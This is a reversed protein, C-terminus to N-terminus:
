STRAEAGDGGEEGYLTKRVVDVLHRVGIARILHLINHLSRALATSAQWEHSVSQAVAQIVSQEERYGLTLGSACDDKSTDSLLLPGDGGLRGRGGERSLCEIGGDSM